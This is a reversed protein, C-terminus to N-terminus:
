SRVSSDTFTQRSAWRRLGDNVISPKKCIASGGETQPLPKEGNNSYWTSRMIKESHTFNEKQDKSNTKFVTNTTEVMLRRAPGLSSCPVDRRHNTREGAPQVFGLQECTLASDGAPLTPLRTGGGAFLRAM